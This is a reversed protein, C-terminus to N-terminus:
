NAPSLCYVVGDPEHKFEIGGFGEIPGCSGDVDDVVQDVRYIPDSINSEGPTSCDAEELEQDTLQFDVRVCDGPEFSRGCSSVGLGIAVAVVLLGVLLRGSQRWDEWKVSQLLGGISRAFAESAPEPRVPHAADPVNVDKSRSAAPSGVGAVAQWALEESPHKARWERDRV